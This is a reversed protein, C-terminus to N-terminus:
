DVCNTLQTISEMEENYMNIVSRLYVSGHVDSNSTIMDMINKAKNRRASIEEQLRPIEANQSVELDPTENSFQLSISKRM